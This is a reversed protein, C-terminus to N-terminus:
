ERATGFRSSFAAGAGFCYVTMHVTLSIVDFLRALPQLGNLGGFLTGLLGPVLIVLLGIM